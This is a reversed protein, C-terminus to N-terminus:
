VAVSAKIVGITEGLTKSLGVGLKDDWGVILVDHDVVGPTLTAMTLGKDSERERNPHGRAAARYGRRAWETNRECIAFTNTRYDQDV